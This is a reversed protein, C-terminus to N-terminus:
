ERITGVPHGLPLGFRWQLAHGYEHTLDREIQEPYRFRFAGEKSWDIKAIEIHQDLPYFCGFVLEGALHGDCIPMGDVIEVRLSLLWERQDATAQLAARERDCPPPLPVCSCLLIAAFLRM